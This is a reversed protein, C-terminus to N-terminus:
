LMVVGVGRGAKVGGVSDMGALPATRWNYLYFNLLGDGKGFKLDALAPVSDMVTMANVVDFGAQQAVILADGLLERIRDTVGAEPADTAYYYLYAAELTHYEPKPPHLLSSPLYYLSFFDTIKHTAPNEVVYTWTVQKERRKLQGPGGLVEGEGRGSVFWHRIEEREPMVPVLDFRQMYQEFLTKVGDIDAQTDLMERLGPIKTTSPLLNSRAVRAVTSSRPVYTFGVDVLKRTNLTRHYYRCVSIPTPIVTAATYIAQFIGKLNIQRTVEKILVPALRKSRLKKHICIYNVEGAAFVKGRVRLTIPTGAIFAVLKKNASVRVGVLWEKFYGPPTLAWHLFESTYKFRMTADADEVYHM